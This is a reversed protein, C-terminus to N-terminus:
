SSSSVAIVRGLGLTFLIKKVSTFKAFFSNQSINSFNGTQIKKEGLPPPQPCDTCHQAQRRGHSRFRLGPKGDDIDILM